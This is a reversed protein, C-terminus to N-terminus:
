LPQFDEPSVIAYMTNECGPCDYNIEVGDNHAPNRVLDAALQILRMFSHTGTPCKQTM